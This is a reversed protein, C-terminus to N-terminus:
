MYTCRATAVLGWCDHMQQKLSYPSQPHQPMLILTKPEFPKARLLEPLLLPEDKAALLMSILFSVPIGFSPFGHCAQVRDCWLFCHNVLFRAEHLVQRMCVHGKKSGQSPPCAVKYSSDGWAVSDGAKYLISIYLLNYTWGCIVPPLM